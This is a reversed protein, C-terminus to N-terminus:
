NRSLQNAADGTAMMFGHSGLFGSGCFDAEAVSKTQQFAKPQNFEKAKPAKKEYRNLDSDTKRCEADIKSAIKGKRAEPLRFLKSNKEM